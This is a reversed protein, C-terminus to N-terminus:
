ASFEDLVGREILWRTFRLRRMTAEAERAERSTAVRGSVSVLRTAEDATFGKAELEAVIDTEDGQTREARIPLHLVGDPDSERKGDHAAHPSRQRRARSNSRKKDPFGATHDARKDNRTTEDKLTDEVKENSGESASMCEPLDNEAPDFQENM